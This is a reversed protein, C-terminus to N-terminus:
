ESRRILIISLLFFLGNPIWAAAAPSTWSNKGIIETSIIHLNFYLWCCILSMLTGVFPGRRSFILSMAGGAMAFIFCSVPVAFKTNYAVELATVDTKLKRGQTIAERLEAATKESAQASFFFEPIQIKENITMTTESSLATLSDKQIRFTKPNEIKWVGAAYHGSPSVILLVESNPRREVLLIDNIQIQNQGVRQVAGLFAQYRQIKIMVDSKFTPSVGLMGYENQLRRADQSSKPVLYESVSWNILGVLIGMFFVPRLVRLISAGSARMATLESERVLRSIALSAGVATGMPLTLILFEPTKFLIYQAIAKPPIASMNLNKFLAIMENAQFMLVVFLTGILIPSILESYIYRDLKKV